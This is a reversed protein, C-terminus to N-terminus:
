LISFCLIPLFKEENSKGEQENTFTKGRPSTIIVKVKKKRGRAKDVAGIIAEAQMVMGVGGGYPKDDVSQHRDKTFDRPNYTNVSIKKDRQARKLISENAYARILDPFITVVHFNM